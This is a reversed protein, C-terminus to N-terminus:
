RRGGKQTGGGGPQMIGFMGSLYSFVIGGCFVLVIIGLWSYIEGTGEIAAQTANAASSTASTEAVIKTQFKAMVLLGLGGIMGVMVIMRVYYPLMSVQGRSGLRARLAFQVM